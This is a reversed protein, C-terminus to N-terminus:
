AEALRADPDEVRGDRLRIIRRTAAAVEREHTVVVVTVGEANVQQLLRM